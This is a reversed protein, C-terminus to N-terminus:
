VAGGAIAAIRDEQAKLYRSVLLKSARLTDAADDRYAALLLAALVVGSDSEDLRHEVRLARDAADALGDRFDISESFEYVDGLVSLEAFKTATDRVPRQTKEYQERAAALEGAEARRLNGAEM